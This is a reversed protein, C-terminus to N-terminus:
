GIVQTVTNQIIEQVVKAGLIIATGIIVYYFTKKADEIEGPNGRAWVFKFGAYIIFVVALVSGVKIVVDLLKSVLDSVSHIGLPNIIENNGTSGGGTGGITGGGTGGVHAGHVIYPSLFVLVLFSASFLIRLSSFLQKM